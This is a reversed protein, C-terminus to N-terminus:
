KKKKGKKGLKKALKEAATIATKKDEQNKGELLEMDAGRELAIKSGEEILEENGESSKAAELAATLRSFAASFNNYSVSPVWIYEGTDEPPKPWDRTEEIHGTNVPKEPDEELWYEKIEKASMEETDVPLKVDPFGEKARGVELEATLRGLVKRAEVLLGEDGENMSATTISESLRGMMKVHEEGARTINKVGNTAVCLWYESHATQCLEGALAVAASLPDDGQPASPGGEPDAETQSKILAEVEGITDKLANVYKCFLTQTVVPSNAKLDAVQAELKRVLRLETVFANGMTLAEESVGLSAGREIMEVLSDIDVSSPSDM